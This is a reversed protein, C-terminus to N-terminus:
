SDATSRRKQPMSKPLMGAGSSVVVVTKGRARLRGIDAAFASLWAHDATGQEWDVLLASGVKVVSTRAAKVAKAAPHTQSPM